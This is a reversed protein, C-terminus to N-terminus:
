GRPAATRAWLDRARSAVNEPTFGFHRALDEAPASAGFGAMGVIEGDLGVFREWGLPSAAEIALRAPISSPLVAARYDAPQAAFREWSPLSVLRVRRGEGELIEMAARALEVESGTAVLLIEPAGGPTERLVYGGRAVGDAAREVTEPLM